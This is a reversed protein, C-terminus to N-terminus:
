NHVSTVLKRCSDRIILQPKLLHREPTYEEGEDMRKFLEIAAKKGMDLFPQKVTTLPPYTWSALTIDDFGTISIDTPVNYGREQVARLAGIATEDNSAVVATFDGVTMLHNMASYGQENSWNTPVIGNPDV